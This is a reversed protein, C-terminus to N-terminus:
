DDNLGKYSAEFTVDQTGLKVCGIYLLIVLTYANGELNGHWHCKVCSKKLM